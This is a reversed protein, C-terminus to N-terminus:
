YAKPPQSLNVNKLIIGGSSDNGVIEPVTEEIGAKSLIAQLKQRLAECAM